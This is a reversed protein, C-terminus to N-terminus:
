RDLRKRIRELYRLPSSVDLEAKYRVVGDFGALRIDCETRIAALLWAKDYETEHQSVISDIHQMISQLVREQRRM